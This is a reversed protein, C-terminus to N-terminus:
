CTNLYNSLGFLPTDGWIGSHLVVFGADQKGICFRAAFLLDAVSAEALLSPAFIYRPQAGLLARLQALSAESLHGELSPM